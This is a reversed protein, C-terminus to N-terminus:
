IDNSCFLATYLVWVVNQVDFFLRPLFMKYMLFYHLWHFFTSLFDLFFNRKNSSKKLTFLQFYSVTFTFVVLCQFKSLCLYNSSISFSRTFSFFEWFKYIFSDLHPFNFSLFYSPLGIIISRFYDCIMLEGLEMQVDNVWCCEGLFFTPSSLISLHLTSVM